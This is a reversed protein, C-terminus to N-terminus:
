TPPSSRSGPRETLKHLLAGILFGPIVLATLFFLIVANDNRTSPTCNRTLIIALIFSALLVTVTSAFWFEGLPAQTKRLFVFSAAAPLLIGLLVVLLDAVDGSISSPFYTLGFLFLLYILYLSLAFIVTSVPHRLRM